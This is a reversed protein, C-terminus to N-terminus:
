TFERVIQTFEGLSMRWTSSWSSLLHAEAHSIIFTYFKIVTSLAGGVKNCNAEFIGPCILNFSALTAMGINFFNM